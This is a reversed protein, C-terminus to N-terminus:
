KGEGGRGLRDLLAKNERISRRLRERLGVDERREAIKDAMEREYRERVEREVGAFKRPDPPMPVDGPGSM